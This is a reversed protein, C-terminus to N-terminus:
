GGVSALAWWRAGVHMAVQVCWSAHTTAWFALEVLNPGDHALSLSLSGPKWDTQNARMFARVREELERLQAATVSHDVIVKTVFTANPSRRHNVIPSRAIDSNQVIVRKGSSSDTLETTLVNIQNVTLTAGNNVNALAIRDGVDFPQVILVFLLCELLRQMSPGLAFGLSILLTGLPVIVKNFDVGFIALAVLGMAVYYVCDALM